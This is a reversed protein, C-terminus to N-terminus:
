SKIPTEAIFRATAKTGEYRRTSGGDVLVTPTGRVGRLRALLRVRVGSSLDVVDFQIGAKRLIDKAVADQQSLSIRTM